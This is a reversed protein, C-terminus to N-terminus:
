ISPKPQATPFGPSGQHTLTGLEPTLWSKVVLGWHVSCRADLM